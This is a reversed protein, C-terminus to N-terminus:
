KGARKLLESVTVFQYGQRSLEPLIIELALLTNKRNGGLDHFLIISGPQITKLIRVAIIKGNLGTWDRSDQKWIIINYNLSRAAKVLRDNINGSTPRFLRMRQGTIKFVIQHSLELDKKLEDETMGNIERHEYTHNGLEHQENYERLVLNPFREAQKGVVFFTAKAQYRKLLDLIKNTFTPSPGDDFTLAAEKENVKVEWYVGSMGWFVRDYFVHSVPNSTFVTLCFAASGLIIWVILNKKFWYVKM